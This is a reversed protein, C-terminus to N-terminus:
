QAVFGLNNFVLSFLTVKRKDLLYLKCKKIVSVTDIDVDYSKQLRFKDDYIGVHGFKSVIIYVFTTGTAVGIIKQITERRAHQISRFKGSHHIYKVTSQLSNPAMHKILLDLLDGWLVYGKKSEDMEKFMAAASDSVNMRNAFVQNLTGVWEDLTMSHPPREEHEGGDLFDDDQTILSSNVDFSDQQLLSSSNQGSLFKSHIIDLEEVTLIKHLADNNIVNAHQQYPRSSRSTSSSKEVTSQHLPVSELTAQKNVPLEPFYNIKNEPM